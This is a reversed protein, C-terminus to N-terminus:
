LHVGIRVGYFGYGNEHYVEKERRRKKDIDIYRDIYIYLSLSVFYLRKISMMVEIRSLDSGFQYYMFDFPLPDRVLENIHLNPCIPPIPPIKKIFSFFFM